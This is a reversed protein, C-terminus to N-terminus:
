NAIDPFESEQMEAFEIDSMKSYHAELLEKALAMLDDVDMGDVIEQAIAEQMETRTM